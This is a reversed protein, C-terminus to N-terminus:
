YKATRFKVEKTTTNGLLDTATIKLTYSKNKELGRIPGAFPQEKNKNLTYRIENSGTQADTSALFISIYSPYVDENDLKEVPANSFNVFIEPGVNDVMCILSSVNRNNVNDYGFYDVKVLGETTITFPQKYDIEQNAGNLSYTIKQLGSEPDNAFLNIKTDKNVFMTDGKQFKPASFQHTLAPGTLDVYVLGVNHRYEDYKEGQDNGVGENGMNDIAYYRVTHLGSKSPLYFPDEYNQFENNDISYKVQKIGAKNDVATLKLKTRGSFYIRDGVIFRDGLVDASMIPSSKDLYFKITTATEKNNVNDISYYTLTHDGDQLYAFPILSGATYPKENENDLRYFTKAVGSISDTPTLYIKTSISIINGSAIGVINHYTKPADLDVIFNNVQAKEINGVNDVAYFKYTYDGSENFNLAQNYPQYQAQNLSHYLQKVGSMEDQTSLTIQLGKGYFNKGNQAFYPANQLSIKSIPAMGDAYIVFKDEANHLADTHKLYHKGHGDLYIPKLENKTTNDSNSLQTATANPSTSVYVYLPLEAQQYYRRLSDVYSGKEVKIQEQAFLTQELL